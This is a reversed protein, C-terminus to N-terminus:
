PLEELLQQLAEFCNYPIAGIARVKGLEAGGDEMGHFDSGGTAILGRLRAQTLYWEIEDCSAGNNYVEVGQLGVAVLEDLLAAMAQQDRTIYPPHALVAVGGAAHILAIAEDVPFFRKAINCPVLYKAFAEEMNKVHGLEILEMAIHPRGVTGGARQAVQEYNLPQRGHKELAHNIKEVIKANRQRRFAQFERLARGLPPHESDFGYGLLHIDQYPGWVCSLEVGSIVQVGLDLGAKREPAVADINDHDCVALATVRLQAAKAVLEQPSFVGDSCSSHMHLDVLDTM